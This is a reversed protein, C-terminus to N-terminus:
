GGGDAQGQTKSILALRHIARLTDLTGPAEPFVRTLANVRGWYEGEWAALRRAPMQGRNADAGNADTSGVGGSVWVVLVEATDDGPNDLTREVSGDRM